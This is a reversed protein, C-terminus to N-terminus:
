PREPSFTTVDDATAILKGILDPPVSMRMGTRPCRVIVRGDALPMPVPFVGFSATRVKGGAQDCPVSQSFCAGRFSPLSIVILDAHEGPSGKRALLSYDPADAPEAPPTTQQVTVKVDTVGAGRLRFTGTMMTGDILALAIQPRGGKVTIAWSLSRVYKADPFAELRRMRLLASDLLSPPLWQEKDPPILKLTGSRIADFFEDISEFSQGQACARGMFSTLTAVVAEWERLYSEDMTRTNWWFEYDGQLDAIGDASPEPGTKTKKKHAEALYRDLVGRYQGDDAHILFHVLSWAQRHLRGGARDNKVLMIANWQKGSMGTLDDWSMQEGGDIDSHLEILDVPDIIGPTYGDGTWIAHSYYECLGADVWRPLYRSIAFHGFQDFAVKQMGSALAPPSVDAAILLGKEWGPFEHSEKPPTKGQYHEKYYDRLARNYDDLSRYLYCNFKDKPPSAFSKGRRTFEGFLTTLRVGIEMAEEEPIDTRLTYHPSDYRTLSQTRATSTLASVALLSVIAVHHVATRHHSLDRGRLM